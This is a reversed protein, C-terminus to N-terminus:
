PRLLETIENALQAVSVPMSSQDPSLLFDTPMREAPGAALAETLASTAAEVSTVQPADPAPWQWLLGAGVAAVVLVAALTWALRPHWVPKPASEQARRAASWSRQFSPARQEAAHGAQGLLDRLEHDQNDNQGNM